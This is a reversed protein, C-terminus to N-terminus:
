MVDYLHLIITYTNSGVEIVGSEVHEAHYDCAGDEVESAAISVSKGGKKLDFSCWSVERSRFIWNDQLKRSKIIYINM